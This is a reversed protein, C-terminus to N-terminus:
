AARRPSVVRARRVNPLLAFLAGAGATAGGMLTLTATGGITDLLVGTALAGIPMLGVSATRATSGVRGLLADPSLQTRLTVYSVLV